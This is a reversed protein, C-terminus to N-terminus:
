IHHALEIMNGGMWPGWLRFHGLFGSPGLPVLDRGERVMKTETSTIFLFVLMSPLLFPNETIYTEKPHNSRGYLALTPLPHRPFAKSHEPFIFFSGQGFTLTQFLIKVEPKTM